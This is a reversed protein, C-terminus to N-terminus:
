EEVLKKLKDAAKKTEATDGKEISALLDTAIENLEKKTKYIGLLNEYDILLSEGRKISERAAQRSVSFMEALEALSLDCNYYLSLMERQRETLLKGYIDFLLSIEFREM